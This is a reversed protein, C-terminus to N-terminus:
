LRQHRVIGVGIDFFEFAQHSHILAEFRFLGLECVVGCLAPDQFLEGADVDELVPGNQVFDVFSPRLLADKFGKFVGRDLLDVFM